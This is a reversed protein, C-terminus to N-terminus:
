IRAELLLDLKRELRDMREALSLDAENVPPIPMPEPVVDDVMLPDPWHHAAELPIRVLRRSWGIGFTAWTSLGIMFRTRRSHVEVVVHTEDVTVARQMAARTNPGYVGDATSGVSEQLWRIARSVGNNVGADFMVFALRPPMDSAGVRNWYDNQYIDHAVALTINRIDLNPYAGASIGYKTGKLQGSGVTGGTWNGPDSRVDSFGGEHGIVLEFAREFDQRTTTM